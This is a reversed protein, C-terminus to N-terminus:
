GFAPYLALPETRPWRSLLVELLRSAMGRAAPLQNFAESTTIFAELRALLRSRMTANGWTHDEKLADELYWILNTLLWFGCARVLGTEFVRDEQAEHCGKVLEARYISEMKSVLACPLRNACWCTPFMMRGCAADILAHGFRGSEFDILRLQEGTYFVNDPCLDGHIYALFPDPRQLGGVM